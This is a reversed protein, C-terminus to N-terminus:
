EIIDIIKQAIMRFSENVNQNLKVSTEIYDMGLKEALKEGDESAVERESILDIKNGVLIGIYNMLHADVESKWKQIAEFSERSSVDYM